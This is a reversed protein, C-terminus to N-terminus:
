RINENQGFLALKAAVGSKTEHESVVGLERLERLTDADDFLRQLSENQKIRNEDGSLLDKRFELDSLLQKMSDSARVKQLYEMGNEPHSIMNSLAAVQSERGDKPISFYSIEYVMRRAFGALRSQETYPIPRGTVGMMFLDGLWFLLAISITGGVLNIGGGSLSSFFSHHFDEEKEKEKRRERINHMMVHFIFAILVFTFVSIAPITVLRPRHTIAGIWYGLYRGSLYAIAYSLVVRVVGLFSLLVGKHWGSLFFFLLIIGALIDIVIYM